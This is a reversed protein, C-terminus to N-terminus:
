IRWSGLLDDPGCGVRRPADECICSASWGSFHRNWMCFISNKPKITVGSADGHIHGLGISDADPQGWSIEFCDLHEQTKGVEIAPENNPERVNDDGQNAEGVLVDWEGPARVV